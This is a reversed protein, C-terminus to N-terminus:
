NKERPPTLRAMARAVLADETIQGGCEDMISEMAKKLAMEEIRRAAQEVLAGWEPTGRKIKKKM